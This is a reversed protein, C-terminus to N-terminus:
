PLVYRVVKSGDRYWLSIGKLLLKSILDQSILNEPNQKFTISEVDDITLKGHYQLELYSTGHERQWQYVSKWNDTPKIEWDKRNKNDFSQVKPDTTLSPQYYEGRTRLSDNYTWTCHVRDKKFRVQVDGYHTLNHTISDYKDRDLLHGYKEYEARALQKGTYGGATIQAHTSPKFMRHAMILREHDAKIKGTTSRSGCYGHSSGTQFTNLFGKEFVSQLLGHDIDMGLDNEDFLVKMLANIEAEKAKLAANTYEFKELAEDLEKLTEPCDKGLKARLDDITEFKVHKYKAALKAQEKAEERKQALKVKKALEDSKQQLAVKDLNKEGALRKVEAALAKLTENGHAEAWALAESSGAILKELELQAEVRALEKKYADQAFKWTDPYKKSGTEEIWRIEFELKSKRDALDKPMKSLTREVNSNVVKATEFSSKRAVELPNDLWSLDQIEQRIAQLRKIEELAQAYHATDLQNRLETTDVDSIGDLDSLVSDGLSIAEKRTEWAKRIREIEESTRAKHRETAKELITPEAGQVDGGLAAAVLSENDRVFYPLTGRERAAEMREENAKIWDGFEEPMKTVEGELELNDTPEKGDLINDLMTDMDAETALVPEMYCRCNPHWGTWKFDKPFLKDAMLDCIDTVPHNNSLKVRMGIVFDLQQWREYDATRYAINTETRALRQANRASSRYVGPRGEGPHYKTPKADIWKYTGTEDDWIRRKWKLGYIPKGDEDEGVKYRFRRYWRDPDNLYEKVKSALQMAPTGEGIALDLTNELEEKFEGNYKWVRQSLNLGGDASKRAFFADMAEQNRKFYRAFHHDEISSAGFVAKVLDDTHENSNLWEAQVGGRITQYVRSYMQRFIPTVQESYGYESFSFPKGAELETGKVLNIVQNFADMYHARVSYAYGETRKFLEQQLKKENLYEKKAM